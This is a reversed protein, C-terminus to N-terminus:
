RKEIDPFKLFVLLGIIIFVASVPGIIRVGVVGVAQSEDGTSTAGVKLLINLVTASLAIGVKNLLAQSAFYLGERREGTKERDRDIIDALLSNPIVFLLSLPLGLLAFLLYGLAPNSFPGIGILGVFPLLIAFMICMVIMSRRKGIRKGLWYSGVGAIAAVGLATGLIIMYASKDGFLHVAIYKASTEIMKFGFWFIVTAILYIRFPPFSLASVIQSITSPRAAIEDVPREDPIKVFAAVLLFPIAAATGIIAAGPTFPITDPIFQIIVVGAFTGIILFAAQLTTVLLRDSPTRTIEPLMALYPTVATTFALFFLPYIIALWLLNSLSPESTPPTTFLLLFLGMLPAGIVMFPKRRGFRSRFYDSINGIWPDDLSDVIRGLMNVAGFLYGGAIVSGFITIPAILASGEVPVYYIQPIQGVSFGIIQVGFYGFAYIIAQSLPLRSKKTQNDM